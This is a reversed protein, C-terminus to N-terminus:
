SFDPILYSNDVNKKAKTIIRPNEKGELIDETHYVNDYEDIYYIIGNIEETSIEM